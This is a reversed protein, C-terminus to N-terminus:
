QGHEFRRNGHKRRRQRDGHPQEKSKLRKSPDDLASDSQLKRKSRGPEPQVSNNTPLRHSASPQPYLIVPTTLAQSLAAVHRLIIRPANHDAYVSQDFATSVRQFNAHADRVAQILNRIPKGAKALAAHKKLAPRLWQAIQPHGLFSHKSRWSDFVEWFHTAQWPYLHDPNLYRNDLSWVIMWVLPELDHLPTHEFPQPGADDELSLETDCYQWGGADIELAMVYPTGQHGPWGISPLSTSYCVTKWGTDIRGIHFPKAYEFDTLQLVQKKEGNVDIAVRLLNGLSLDRHVFGVRFMWRLGLIFCSRWLCIML